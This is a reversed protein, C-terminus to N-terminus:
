ESLCSSMLFVKSSISFSNQQLVFIILIFFPYNLFVTFFLSEFKNLVQELLRVKQFCQSPLKKWQLRGASELFPCIGFFLWSYQFLLLGSLRGSVLLKQTRIRRRWLYTWIFVCFGNLLCIRCNNNNAFLRLSNNNDSFIMQWFRFRSFIFLRVLCKLSSWNVKKPRTTLALPM